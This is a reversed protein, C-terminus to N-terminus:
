SITHVVRADKQKFIPVYEVKVSTLYDEMTQGTM